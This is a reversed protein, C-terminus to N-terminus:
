SVRFQGLPVSNDELVKTGIRATLRLGTAQSYLGVEVTYVGPKLSFRYADDIYEGALWLATPYAGSRPMLDSQAVIAGSADIVHVFVTYDSDVSGQANWVLNLGLQSADTTASFGYLNLADGFTAGVKVDVMPPDFVRAVGAVEVEGLEITQDGTRLELTYHGSAQDRPISWLVHDTVLEANKWREPPYDISGSWLVTEGSDSRLVASLRLPARATAETAQWFLTAGLTEGPRATAQAPNWGLLRVGAALDVPHRVTMPLVNPDPYSSPRIVDALGVQAWVQGSAYPLYTNTSKAIWAVTVPYQGPPTGVPVQLALRQILVEGTQWQDTDTMYVERRDLVNGHADELQVIPTLDPFSPPAAVRWETIIQDHGGSAVVPPQVGVLTLLQNAVPADPLAASQPLLTSGDLRFADFSPKDDPGLPVDTMRGQELWRAWDGPPPVSRPFVYIGQEGPPPRFLSDTGLWIVSPPNTIAVTPSFRDRAAVYVRTHADTHAPLWAAAAALDGDSEYFVDARAAWGFYAEGVAVGGVVLLSLTLGALLVKQNSELWSMWSAPM